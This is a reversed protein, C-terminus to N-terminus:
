DRFIKRPLLLEESVANLTLIMPHFVGIDDKYGFRMKNAEDRSIIYSPIFGWEMEVIDFDLENPVRKLVAHPKYEFGIQLPKNLFDYNAILKELQKLRILETRTVKVGNYYCM